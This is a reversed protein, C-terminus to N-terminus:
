EHWKFNFWAMLKEAERSNTRNQTISRPDIDSVPPLTSASCNTPIITKRYIQLFLFSTWTLYSIPVEETRGQLTHATQQKYLATLSHYGDSLLCPTNISIRYVHTSMGARSSISKKNRPTKMWLTLFLSLGAEEPQQSFSFIFYTISKACPVACLFMWYRWPRLSHRSQEEQGWSRSPTYCM